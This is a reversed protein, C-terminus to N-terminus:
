GATTAEGEMESLIEHARAAQVGLASAVQFLEREETRSLQRDRLALRVANRYAEEREAAARPPPAGDPERPIAREALRDAFQSLPAIGLVLLGAALIGIYQSSTRDGFFQQAAESVVFIIAVFVAAVTGKSITWRAGADAGLLQHRVLGYTLAAVAALRVLGLAGVGPTLDRAVVLLGLLMMVLTLIMVNRAARPAPGMIMARMWLGAGVVFPIVQIGYGFALGVDAALVSEQRLGGNQTAFFGSYLVIAGAVLALRRASDTNSASAARLAWFAHVWALVGSWALGALFILVGPANWVLGDYYTRHPETMFRAAVPAATLVALAVLKRHDRTVPEPFLLAFVVLGAMSVLALAAWAVDGPNAGLPLEHLFLSVGNGAMLSAGFMVAFTAFAVNVKPRPKLSAVFVGLAVIALGSAFSLWTGLNGPDHM